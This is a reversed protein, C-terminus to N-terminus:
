TSWSDVTHRSCNLWSFWILHFDMKGLSDVLTAAWGGFPDNPHGSQPRVEDHLWAHEKYGKWAHSFNGKVMDLRTLRLQRAAESEAGFVAQILPLKKILSQPPLQKMSSVPYRPTVCSWHFAGTDTKGGSQCSPRKITAVASVDHSPILASPLKPATLQSAYFFFLIIGAFLISVRWRVTGLMSSHFHPLVQTLTARRPQPIM